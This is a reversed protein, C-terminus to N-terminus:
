RDDAIREDDIPRVGPPQDYGHRSSYFLLTMLGIGVAFSFLVGLALAVRGEAPIPPGEIANWSYVAFGVVVVLLAILPAIVAYKRM